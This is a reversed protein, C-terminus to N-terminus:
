LNFFLWWVNRLIVPPVVANHYGMGIYSKVGKNKSGLQKVTSLLETESLPTISENTISNVPVRIKPPVTAEIFAEMSKYGIRSLMLSVEHDDPGIHRESFSDLAEFLSKPARISALCRTQIPWCVRSLSSRPRFYVISRVLIM